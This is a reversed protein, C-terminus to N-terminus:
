FATLLIPSSHANTLHAFSLVQSSCTSKLPVTGQKCAGDSQDHHRESGDESPIPPLPMEPFNKKEKLSAGTQRYSPPPPPPAARAPYRPLTSAKEESTSLIRKNEPTSFSKTRPQLTHNLVSSTETEGKESDVTNRDSVLATVLIGDESKVRGRPVPVPKKSGARAPPKPVPRKAEIQAAPHSAADEINGYIASEKIDHDGSTKLDEDVVQPKPLDSIAPVPKKSGARAPAKPVPRNAEIQAAPHSAVDEINGYTASEKIDHDGSTKLDEDVVQPKPLDSNAPVPQKSGARAPPKPVPRKAEIQAAPLSAADEINEYIASGKINHDGLTKLDEDVVQQKPLDSIASTSNVDALSEESKLPDFTAIIDNSVAGPNQQQPDPQAGTQISSSPTAEPKNETPVKHITRRPPKVPIKKKPLQPQVSPKEAQSPQVLDQTHTHQHVTKVSTDSPDTGEQLDARPPIPPPAKGSPTRKSAKPPLVPVEEEISESNKGDEKATLTVSAGSEPEKNEHENDAFHILSTQQENGAESGRSILEANSMVGNEENPLNVGLKEKLKEVFTLFRRRHYPMVIGIEDLVTENINCCIELSIFGNSVLKDAYRELKVEAALWEKVAAIDESEAEM